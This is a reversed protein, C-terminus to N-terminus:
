RWKSWNTLALKPLRLRPPYEMALALVDLTYDHDTLRKGPRLAECSGSM